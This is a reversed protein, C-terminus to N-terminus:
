FKPRKNLNSYTTVRKGKKRSWNQAKIM